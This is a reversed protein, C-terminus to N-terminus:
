QKGASDAQSLMRILPLKDCRSSILIHERSLWNHYILHYDLLELELLFGQMLCVCLCISKVLHTQDCGQFGRPWVAGHTSAETVEAEAQASM